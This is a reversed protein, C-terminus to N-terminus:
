FAVVFEVEVERGGIADGLEEVVGLVTVEGFVAFSVDGFAVALAVVLFVEFGVAAATAEVGVEEWVAVLTEAVTSPAGVCTAALGVVAMAPAFFAVEVEIGTVAGEGALIETFGECATVALNDEEAAGVALNDAEVVVAFCVAFTPAAEEAVVVGRPEAIVLTEVAVTGMEVAFVVEEPADAVVFAFLAAEVEPGTVAEGEVELAAMGVAFTTVIPAVGVALRTFSEFRVPADVAFDDDDVAGVGALVPSAFSDLDADVLVEVTSPGDVVHSEVGFVSGRTLALEPDLELLM